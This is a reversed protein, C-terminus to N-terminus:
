FLLYHWFLLIFKRLRHIDRAHRLSRYNVFHKKCWKNLSRETNKEKLGSTKSGELFDVAARFVNILTIHDGEDAGAPSSFLTRAARAQHLFFTIWVLKLPLSKFLWLWSWCLILLVYLDLCNRLIKTMMDIILSAHTHYIIKGYCYLFCSYVIALYLMYCFMLVWHIQQHILFSPDVCMFWVVDMKELPAYFISETSLMAIVILMEELCHFESALILAKAYIPDLPLQAMKRGVPDSLKYDDTLAGLLLLQELAKM